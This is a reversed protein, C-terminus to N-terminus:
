PWDLNYMPPLSKSRLLRPSAEDKSTETQTAVDALLIDLGQPAVIPVSVQVGDSRAHHASGVGHTRCVVRFKKKKKAHIINATIADELLIEEESMGKALGASVVEAFSWRLESSEVCKMVALRLGHRIVWRCRATVTLMHPYLEVDFDVSLKDLRADMEACCQQSLQTNTVQLDAFQVRLSKFEKALEANRAEAAKKIDVEVKLLTELNKTEVTSHPRGYRPMGEPYGPPLQQIHGVGASLYGRTVLGHLSLIVIEKVGSEERFIPGLGRHDCCKWDPHFAVHDKRLVKPPANAETEEKGRKRHRKNVPAGNRGSGKRYKARARGERDNCGKCVPKWISTRRPSSPKRNCDAAARPRTRTKVKSPNPASILSFLDIHFNVFELFKTYVGVKGELFGVIPEVPDPLEPHLSDPIGYESTFELLYEQSITSVADELQITDRVM